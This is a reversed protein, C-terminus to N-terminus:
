NNCPKVTGKILLIEEKKIGQNKWLTICPNVVEYVVSTNDDESIDYFDRNLIHNTYQKCTDIKVGWSEIINKLVSLSNDCLDIITLLEKYNHINLITDRWKHFIAEESINTKHYTQKIVANFSEINNLFLSKADINNPPTKIPRHESNTCSIYLPINIHTSQYKPSMFGVNIGHNNKTLIIDISLTYLSKIFYSLFNDIKQFISRNKQFNVIEKYKIQGSQSDNDKIIISFTISKKCKVNSLQVHEISYKGSICHNGNNTIQKHLIEHSGAYIYIWSNM